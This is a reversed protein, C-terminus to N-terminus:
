PMGKWIWIATGMTIMGGVFAGALQWFHIM